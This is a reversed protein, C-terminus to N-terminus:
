LLVKLEDVRLFTTVDQYNPLTASILWDSMSRLRSWVDSQARLSARWSQGMSMTLLHIEDIIILRVLSVCSTDTSKRMIIDTSSFFVLLPGNDVAPLITRPQQTYHPPALYTNALTHTCPPPAPKSPSAQHLGFSSFPHPHTSPSHKQSRLISRIPHSTPTPFYSKNTPRLQAIAPGHVAVM